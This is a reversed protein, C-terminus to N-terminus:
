EANGNDSPLFSIEKKPVTINLHLKGLETSGQLRIGNCDIRTIYALRDIINTHDTTGLSNSKVNLRLFPDGYM